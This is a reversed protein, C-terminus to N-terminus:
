PKLVPGTSFNRYDLSHFINNKREVKTLWETNVTNRCLSDYIKTFNHIHEKIRNESYTVSTGTKMIFQWDSAMALLVERAAQNLARGKLGGEDPFRETLEQMREIARHIHKYTWDNSGDMWVEAYGNQGWSSFSPTVKQSEPYEKLYDKPFITEICGGLAHVQRYM